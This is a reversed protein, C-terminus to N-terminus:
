KIPTIKSSLFNIKSQLIVDLQKQTERIMYIIRIDDSCIPCTLFVNNMGPAYPYSSIDIMNDCEPNPCNIQSILGEVKTLVIKRKM